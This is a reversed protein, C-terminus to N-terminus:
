PPKLETAKGTQTGRRKFADGIPNSGVVEQTVPLRASRQEVLVISNSLVPVRIQVSVLQNSALRARRQVSCGYSTQLLELPIRVWLMEPELGFHDEPQRGRRILSSLPAGPFRVRIKQKCCLRRGTPRAGWKNRTLLSLQLTAPEGSELKETGLAPISGAFM